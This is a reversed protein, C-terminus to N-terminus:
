SRTKDEQFENIIRGNAINMMVSELTYGAVDEEYLKELIDIFRTRLNFFKKNKDFCVQLCYNCSFSEDSNDNFWKIAHEKGRVFDKIAILLIFKVLSKEGPDYDTKIDYRPLVSVHGLNIRKM